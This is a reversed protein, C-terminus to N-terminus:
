IDNPKRPADFSQHVNLQVRGRGVRYRPIGLRHMLDSFRPDSRLPDFAPRLLISPNFRADYAKNLWTMAQDQDGLGEYVLAINADVAPNHEAELDKVIKTAEEKRGSVAYAYALNSDFAGSHGSLEIAKQFEAIAEDYMHKQELAQGLVYHGIAFNPSLELTRRSQDVSKDYLHSICLADALSANIALSLPDLSDAKRFELISENTKGMIMLHWAYWLHLTAYAPSLKIALQYETEAAEWDRGYHDLIYALSTHAEGLSSNLALAKTAAAKAKVFADQPPLVGYELNGSLAYADALGSYAEAYNPDLAIARNFYEIARKLGDGTRRNWFYRGKLYAEYADPNETMPKKLAAGEQRDLIIRFQAAIARAIESQIKLTDHLDGEYSQAWVDRGTSIEILRATIRVRDGSLLVSGKVVADVNLDRAIERLPQRSRTYATSSPSAIVRLRRIQALNTILEDTMGDAFYNQSADSSLNQLPLVVISHIMSSSLRSSHVITSLSVALVLVVGFLWWASFRASRGSSTGADRLPLPGPNQEPALDDTVAKTQEGEVVTVDALFRYGRRAVTEIFRPNEASDGLAERIKSIAKNLGHDFDVTTQPWLKLHLEERTVLVGPKELLMALLQFPQEQLRVRKGLRTLEGTRLDAEFVAFKLNRPPIETQQMISRYPHISNPLCWDSAKSVLWEASTAGFRLGRARGSSHNKRKMM